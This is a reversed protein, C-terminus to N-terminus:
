PLSTLCSFQPTKCKLPMWRSAHQAIEADASNEQEISQWSWKWDLSHWSEGQFHVELFSIWLLMALFIVPFIIPGAPSDSSWDEALFIGSHEAWCARWQIAKSVLFHMLEYQTNCILITYFLIIYLIVHVPHLLFIRTFIKTNESCHILM